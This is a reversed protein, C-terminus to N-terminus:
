VPRTYTAKSTCTEHVSVSHLGALSPELREFIWKALQESTPAFLGTTENLHHHDLYNEVLDESAAKIDGFDIAMGEKPGSAHVHARRVVIEAIFSHGHLRACKGDHNPLQHAAEFRIM